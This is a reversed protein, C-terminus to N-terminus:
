ANDGWGFTTRRDYLNGWAMYGSVWCGRPTPLTNSVFTDEACTWACQYARAKAASNQGLLAYAVPGPMAWGRLDNGGISFNSGSGHDFFDSFVASDSTRDRDLPHCRGDSYIQQEYTVQWGVKSTASGINGTYGSLLNVTGYLMVTSGVEEFMTQYEADQTLLYLMYLMPLQHSQWMTGHSADSGNPTWSGPSQAYVWNAPGQRSGGLRRYTLNRKIENGFGVALSLMLGRVEPLVTGLEITTSILRAPGRNGSLGSGGPYPDGRQGSMANSYAYNKVMRYAYYDWKALQYYSYLATLVYHENDLGDSTSRYDPPTILGSNPPIAGTNSGKGFYNQGSVDQPYMGLLPCGRSGTPNVWYEGDRKMWLGPRLGNDGVAATADYLEQYGRICQSLGVMDLNGNTSSAAAYRAFVLGTSWVAIDDVATMGRNWTVFHKTTTAYDPRIIEARGASAPLAGVKGGFLYYGDWETADGVGNLHNINTLPEAATDASIWGKVAFQRGHYMRGAWDYRDNDGTGNTFSMPLQIVTDSGTLAIEGGQANLTKFGENAGFKLKVPYDYRFRIKPANAYWSASQEDSWSFLTDFEGVAQNHWVTLAHEVHWGNHHVAWIVQKMRNGDVRLTPTVSRIGPAIEEETGNANVVFVRPIAAPNWSGVVGCSSDGYNAHLDFSLTLDDAEAVLDSTEGHTPDGYQSSQAVGCAPWNGYATYISDRGDDWQKHAIVGAMPPTTFRLTNGTIAGSEYAAERRRESLMFNVYRPQAASQNANHVRIAM